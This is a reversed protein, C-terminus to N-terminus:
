VMKTVAVMTTDPRRRCVDRTAGADQELMVRKADRGAEAAAGVGPAFRQVL